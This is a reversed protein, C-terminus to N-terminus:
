RRATCPAEEVEISEVSLQEGDLVSTRGGGCRPCLFSLEHLEWEHGCECRLRAPVLRAQLRAGECVTGRALIAFNFQLSDPVVQRLAGITVSVLLVPRGEAHHVATELIERGISLEHM